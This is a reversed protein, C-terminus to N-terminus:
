PANLFGQLVRLQPQWLGLYCGRFAAGSAAALWQDSATFRSEPKTECDAPALPAKEGGLAGNSASLM